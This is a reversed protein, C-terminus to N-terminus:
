ELSVDDRPGLLEAPSDLGKAMWMEAPENVPAVGNAAWACLDEGGEEKTDGVETGASM